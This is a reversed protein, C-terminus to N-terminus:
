GAGAILAQIMTLAKRRIDQPVEGPIKFIYDKGRKNEVVREALSKAADADPRASLSAVRKMVTAIPTSKPSLSKAYQIFGPKKFAKILSNRQPTTLSSPDSIASWFGAPADDILAVSRSVTSKDRGITEALEDQTAYRGSAMMHKIQLAFSYPSKESRKANELDHLKDVMELSCKRVDALVPVGLERCIALRTSGYILHYTALGDQLVEAVGIPILNGGHERISERIEEYKKSKYEDESRAAVSSLIIEDPRFTRQEIITGKEHDPFVASDNIRRDIVEQVKAPEQPEQSAARRRAMKQELAIAASAEREARIEDKTKKIKSMTM